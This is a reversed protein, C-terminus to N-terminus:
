KGMFKKEVCVMGMESTTLAAESDRMRTIDIEGQESAYKKEEEAREEPEGIVM